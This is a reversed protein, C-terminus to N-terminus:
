SQDMGYKEKFKVYKKETTQEASWKLINPDSKVQRGLKWEVYFPDKRGQMKIIFNPFKGKGAFQAFDRKYLEDMAYSRDDEHILESIPTEAIESESMGLLDHWRKGTFVLRASGNMEMFCDMHDEDFFWSMTVSEKQFVRLVAQKADAFAKDLEKHEEM